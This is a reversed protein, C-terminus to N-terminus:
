NAFQSRLNKLFRKAPEPREFGSSMPFLAPLPTGSFPKDSILSPSFSPFFRRPESASAFAEPTCKTEEEDNEKTNKRNNNSNNNFFSGMNSRNGVATTRNVLNNVRVNLRNNEKNAFRMLPNLLVSFQDYNQNSITRQWVSRALANFPLIHQQAAVFILTSTVVASKEEIRIGLLDLATLRCLLFCFENVALLDPHVLNPSPTTPSGHHHHSPSTTSHSTRRNMNNNEANNNESGGSSGNSVVRNSNTLTMMANSSNIRGFSTSTVRMPELIDKVQRYIAPFMM